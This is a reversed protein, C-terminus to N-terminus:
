NDSSNIMHNAIPPFINYIVEKMRDDWDQEDVAKKMCSLWADRGQPTIRHPLHRQRM